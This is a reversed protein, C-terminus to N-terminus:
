NPDDLLGKSDVFVFGSARHLTGAVAHRGCDNDRFCLYATGLSVTPKLGCFSVNSLRDRLMSLNTIRPPLGRSPVTRMLPALFAASGAMAAARRVSSGTIRSFMGCTRSMSVVRLSSEAMPASTSSPYPRACCRVLIQQRFKFEGSAEYSNTLVM